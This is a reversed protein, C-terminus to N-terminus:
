LEATGTIMLTAVVSHGTLTSYEAFKAQHTDKDMLNVIDEPSGELVDLGWPFKLGGRETLIFRNHTDHGLVKEIMVINLSFNKPIFRPLKEKLESVRFDQSEGNPSINVCYKLKTPEVPICRLMERLPEGWKKEAKFYPDVFIIERSHRLLSSSVALYGALKKPMACEHPCTFLHHTETIPSDASLVAPNARPNECALIAHFPKEAHASEASELWNDPMAYDRGSPVLFAGKDALWEELIKRQRVSFNDAAEHVMKRWKKPFEAILRAKPVGFKEHLYHFSEWTGLLKPEVAFEHLM